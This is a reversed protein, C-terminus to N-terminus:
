RGGIRIDNAVVSLLEAFSEYLILTFWCYAFWTARFIAPPRCYETKETMRGCAALIVIGEIGEMGMVEEKGEVQESKKVEM